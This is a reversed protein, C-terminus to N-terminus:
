DKKEIFFNNIVYLYFEDINNTQTDNIKIEESLFEDFLSFDIDPDIEKLDKKLLEINLNNKDNKYINKLNTQLLNENYKANLDVPRVKPQTLQKSSYYTQLSDIISPNPNPFNNKQFLINLKKLDLEKSSSLGFIYNATIDYINENKFSLM